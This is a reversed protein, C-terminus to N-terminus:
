FIKELENIHKPSTVLIVTDGPSIIRDGNAIMIRGRNQIMVILLDRPLYPGLESLPIGVVRSNMSVNIEMIEAQNEYISILSNVKGSFLQSLIQNTASIRPSATYRFGLWAAIPIYATNSLVVVSNECGVEKSLLSTFLNVEDHNTCAVFIDAQGIKENSLFDLDSADHNMITAHPLRDALERCRSFDKEIIRIDINFPELLKALYLCTLSGGAIVISKIEKQTINFFEHIQSIAETAGIFTVEDGSLITDNGHPFILKKTPNGELDNESTDRRILGVIIKEPLDLNKLDTGSL